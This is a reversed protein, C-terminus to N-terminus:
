SRDYIDIRGSMMMRHSPNIRYDNTQETQEERCIGVRRRGGIMESVLRMMVKLLVVSCVIFSKCSAVFRPGFGFMGPMWMKM